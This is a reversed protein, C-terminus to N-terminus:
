AVEDISNKYSKKFYSSRYGKLRKSDKWFVFRGAERIEDVTQKLFTYAKDRNLKANNNEAREGNMKALVVSMDVAMKAAKDLQAVPYKISKLLPLNAKGLVALDSLDQIMDANDKGEEILKIKALLDSRMRFAFRFTHELENKLEFALPSKEEWEQRAEEQSYRDKMWLSQAYQLASIRKPLEEFLAESIGVKVLEAKDKKSWVALDSAEQVYNEVPMNPTNTAADEIAAISPLLLDYNEKSM